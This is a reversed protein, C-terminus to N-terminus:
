IFLRRGGDVNINEGTIYTADMLLFCVTNSIDKASGLKKLATDSLIKNRAKLTQQNNDSKEMEPWLIAGPSVSNVRINPALMYAFEKTIDRLINKSAVYYTHEILGSQAYIDIINVVAGNSSELYPAAQNILKRPFQSNTKLIKEASATNSNLFPTPYFISANNILYDIRGFKEIASRVLKVDMSSDALDAQITAVSNKRIQNLDCSLRHADEKSSHYHLMLDINKAHLDKAIQKGIRKAAGTILAVKNQTIYAKESTLSPSKETNYPM